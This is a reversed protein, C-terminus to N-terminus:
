ATLESLLDYTASDKNKKLSKKIERNWKMLVVNNKDEKVLLLYDRRAIEALVKEPKTYNTGSNFVIKKDSKYFFASMIKIRSNQTLAEGNPTIEYVNITKM